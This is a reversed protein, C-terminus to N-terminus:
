AAVAHASQQKREWKALYRDRHFEMDSLKAMANGPGFAYGIMEGAGDLILGAMLTPLVRLLLHRPRGPKRLERVIRWFRVLPILPTAGAYVLRLWLPWQRARSSAFVRGAFFRLPITFLPASPNQHFTRAKPELYLLHGKAQLDWHLISEADLMAELQDGYKLLVARKYTDNHGPLHDAIAAAAPELWQSYEILLNAWSIM